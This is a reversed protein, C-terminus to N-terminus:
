AGVLTRLALMTVTSGFSVTAAIQWKFMKKIVTANDGYTQEISHALSKVAQEESDGSDGWAVIEDARMSPVLKKPLAVAATCIVLGVFSAIALIHLIWGHLALPRASVVGFLTVAVGAFGLLAGVNRRVKEPQGMLEELASRAEALALQYVALRDPPPKSTVRSPDTMATVRAYADSLTLRDAGRVRTAKPEAALFATKASRTAEGPRATSLLTLVSGGRPLAM